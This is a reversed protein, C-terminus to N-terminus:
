RNRGPQNLEARMDGNFWLAENIATGGLGQQPKLLANSIMERYRDLM